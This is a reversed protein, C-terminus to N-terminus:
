GMVAIISVMRLDNRTTMAVKRVEKMAEAWSFAMASKRFRIPPAPAASLNTVSSSGDVAPGSPASVKVMEVESEPLGIIVPEDSEAM